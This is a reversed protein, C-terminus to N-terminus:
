DAHEPIYRGRVWEFHSQNEIPICKPRPAFLGGAQRAWPHVNGDPRGDEPSPPSQSFERKLERACWSHAKGLAYRPLPDRWDGERFHHAACLGGVGTPPVKETRFRVLAHVHTVAVAVDIVEAGYFELASTYVACLRLRADWGLRVAPKKMMAISERRIVEYMHRPPPQKYDGDVHERHHRARWGRPDGRLWNNKFTAITHWYGNWPATM